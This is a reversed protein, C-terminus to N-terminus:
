NSNQNFIALPSLYVKGPGTINMMSLGEGRLVNGISWGANVQNSNFGVLAIIHKEDVDITEGQSLVKEIPAGMSDLFVTATGDIKQFFLGMGGFLGQGSVNLTLNVKNTSGVYLRRHCIISENQIKVAALACASGSILLTRPQRSNNTFRVILISEGSLKSKIIGGLVSGLGNFEIDRQLGSEVYVISGREAYFSECPQLVVELTKFEYGIFKCNM